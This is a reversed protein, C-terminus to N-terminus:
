TGSFQRGDALPKRETSIIAHVALLHQVPPPSDLILEDKPKCSFFRDIAKLEQVIEIEFPCRPQAYVVYRDALNEEGNMAGVADSDGAAGM